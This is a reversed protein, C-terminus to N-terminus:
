REAPSTARRKEIFSDVTYSLLHLNSKDRELDTHSLLKYM